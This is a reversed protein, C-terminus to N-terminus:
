HGIGGAKIAAEIDARHAPSSYPFLLTWYTAADKPAMLTARASLDEAESMLGLKALGALLVLMSFYRPKAAVAQRAFQVSTEHEGLHFHALALACQFFYQVPDRPSLRLALEVPGIADAPNGAFIQSWGLANQALALNPALEVARMAEEVASVPRLDMLHAISMAYHAYADHPELSVARSAADVLDRRDADLDTSFGHLSRAYLSRSLIMHARALQPDLAIARRQWRISEDFDEPRDQKNHHWVGRMHCDYADLNFGSASIARASEGRLIEPEIAGVVHRALEDQLVLLDSIDRDYRESWIVVGKEADILEATLRVRGGARRVSGDLLYRIGLEHAIEKESSRRERFAFSSNRAIVFFWRYHSLLAVIDEAVGDAFYDESANGSLNRFPLVAISPLRPLQLVEARGLPSDSKSPLIAGNRIARALDVTLRTPATGLEAQMARCLDNFVRLAAAQEGTQAHHEMLARAATERLPDVGLLHRAAAYRAQADGARATDAILKELTEEFLNRLRELEFRLWGEFAPDRVHCGDLLDGRYLEVIRHLESSGLQAVEELEAVDTGLRTLDLKITNRGVELAEIGAPGFRSKLDAIAHKLSDRAQADQRDSWLLSAIKDHSCCGDRSLALVCLLAREKASPIPCDAGSPGSLAFGGLLVMRSRGENEQIKGAM